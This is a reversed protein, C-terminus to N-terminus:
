SYFNLVLDASIFLKLIFNAIKGEKLALQILILLSVQHLEIGLFETIDFSATSSQITMISELIRWFSKYRNRICLFNDRWIEEYYDAWKLLRIHTTRIKLLNLPLWIYTLFSMAQLKDFIHWILFSMAENLYIDFAWLCGITLRWM